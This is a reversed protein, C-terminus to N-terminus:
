SDRERIQYYRLIGIFGSVFLLIIAPLLLLLLSDNFVFFFITILVFVTFSALAYALISKKDDKNKIFSSVLVACILLIEIFYIELINISLAYKSYEPFEELLLELFMLAIGGLPPFIIIVSWDKLLREKSDFHTLHEKLKKFLVSLRGLLDIFIVFFIIISIWLCMFSFLMSNKVYHDNVSSSQTSGLTILQPSNFILALVLFVGMVTFLTENKRLFDVLSYEENSEVQPLYRRCYACTLADDVNERDCAPCKKM